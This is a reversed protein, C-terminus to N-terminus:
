STPASAAQATDAMVRLGSTVIAAPSATKKAQCHSTTCQCPAFFSRLNRSAGGIFLRFAHTACCGLGRMAMRYMSAARGEACQASAAARGRWSTPLTGIDRERGTPAQSRM